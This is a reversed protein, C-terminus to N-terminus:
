RGRYMQEKAFIFLYIFYIFLFHRNRSESLRIQFLYQDATVDPVKDMEIQSIGLFVSCVMHRRGLNGLGPSKGLRKRLADTTTKKNRILNRM